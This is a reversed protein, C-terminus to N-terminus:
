QYYKYISQICFKAAFNTRMAVLIRDEKGMRMRGRPIKIVGKFVMPVGALSADGGGSLGKENHLVHRKNTHSGVAGPTPLNAGSFTSWVNGPSKIWYFDVLPVENAVEGGESIVYVSYFISSITSGTQVESVNAIVPNDVTAVTTQAITNTVAAIIGSSDVINKNSNIPRRYSQRFRAMIM